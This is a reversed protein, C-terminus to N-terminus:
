VRNRLENVEEKLIKMESKLDQIEKVLLAIFGNYNISQMDEGDKEGTVLFPIESQVEHALFGLDKKQSEKFNYYVPKLQDISFDTDSIPIINEKLRYDSRANYSLADVDQEFYVSDTARVSGEVFLTWLVNPTVTNIGVSAAIEGLTNIIIGPVFVNNNAAYLTLNSKYANPSIATDFASIKGLNYNSQNKWFEISTEGQTYATTNNTLKLLTGSNGQIDLPCKPSTKGIGVFSNTFTDLRLCNIEDITFINQNSPSSFNTTIYINNNIQEIPVIVTARYKTPALTLPPSTYLIINDDPYGITFYNNTYNQSYNTFCTIDIQLTSGGTIFPNNIRVIGFSNGYIINIDIGVTSPTVTTNSYNVISNVDITAIFGFEKDFVNNSAILSECISPVILNSGEIPNYSTDTPLYITSDSMDSTIALNFYTNPNGGNNSNTRLFVQYQPSPGIGDSVDIINNLSIIKPSYFNFTIPNYTNYTNSQYQRLLRAQQDTFTTAPLINLQPTPVYVAFSYTIGGATTSGNLTIATDLTVSTNNAGITVSTIRISSLPYQSPTIGAGSGTISVFQGIAATPQGSVNLGIPITSNAAHNITGTRLFTYTRAVATNTLNSVNTTIHYSTGSTIVNNVLIGDVVGGTTTNNFTLIDGASIASAFTLGLPIAITSSSLIYYPISGGNTSFRSATNPPRTNFTLSYNNGSGKNSLFVCDSNNIIPASTSTIFSNIGPDIDISRYVFYSISGTSSTYIAGSLTSSNLNAITDSITASRGAVNSITTGYAVSGTTDSIFNGSSLNPTNSHISNSNRYGYFESYSSDIQNSSLTYLKTSVSNNNTIVPADNITYSNISSYLLKNRIETGTNTILYSVASINQIFGFIETNSSTTFINNPTSYNGNNANISIFPKSYNNISTSTLFTGTPISKNQICIQNQNLCFGVSSTYSNYPTLNGISPITNISFHTTNFKSIIPNNSIGEGSLMVNNDILSNSTNYFITSTDYIFGNITTISPTVPQYNNSSNDYYIVIDCTLSPVNNSITGIIKPNSINSYERTIIANIYIIDFSTSGITGNINISGYNNSFDGMTALLYYTNTPFSTIGLSQSNWYIVNSNSSGGGLNKAFINGNINVDGGFGCGGNVILAGTTSNISNATSYININGGININGNFSSDSIFTSNGNVVMNRGVRLNGNLSLDYLANINGRITLNRGVVLNANFSSDSIVNSTGNIVMNKGLVLNGNLSLDYLGIVNGQINLNNRVVLNANFSSDLMVNSSGNVVM